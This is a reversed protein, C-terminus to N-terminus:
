SRPPTTSRNLAGLISHVQETIGQSLVHAPCEPDFLLQGPWPQFQPCTCGREFAEDSGPFPDPRWDKSGEPLTCVVTAGCEETRM